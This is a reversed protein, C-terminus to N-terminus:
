SSGNVSRWAGPSQGTARRFVRAFYGGSAFGCRQAVERVDMGPESRLLLRARDLRVAEVARAFGCAAHRRCIDSLYTPNLGLIRASGDRDMSGHCGAAIHEQVRQWTLQARSPPEAACRVAHDACLRLLVRLQDAGATRDGRGAALQDLTRAALTGPEGLPAGTHHAFPSAAPVSERELKRGILFRLFQPRLVIGLFHVPRTWEARMPAGPALWLAEGVQLLRSRAQEGDKWRYRQSGRLILVLRADPQSTWGAPTLMAGPAFVM